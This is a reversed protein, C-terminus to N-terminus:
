QRLLRLKEAIQIFESRGEKTITVRNLDILVRIARDRRGSERLGSPGLRQLDRKSIRTLCQNEHFYKKLWSDLSKADKLEQPMDVEGFYRAQENAYWDIIQMARLMNDESIDSRGGTADVANELLQFQCALRAANDAAKGLFRNKCTDEDGRNSQTDRSYDKWVSRATSSLPMEPPSLVRGSDDFQLKKGFLSSLACKYADVHPITDMETGEFNYSEVKALLTRAFFGSEHLLESNENKSLFNEFRGPQLLLGITLKGGIAIDIGRSVTRTDLTEGSWLDCWAHITGAIQKLSFAHAYLLKGGEGTIIAASPHHHCLYSVVYQRSVDVIPLSPIYVPPISNREAILERLEKEAMATDKGTKALQRIKDKKGLIKSEIASESATFLDIDYGLRQRERLVHEAVVPSLLDNNTTKRSNVGALCISFTGIPGVRRADRRVVALGQTAYSLYFLHVAVILPMAGGNDKHAELVSAEIVGPLAETPFPEQPPTIILSEPEPSNDKGIEMRNPGTNKQGLNMTEGIQRKVEERGQEQHLDNFDTKGPGPRAFQPFVVRPRMGTIREVAKAAEMAKQRGKNENEARRSGDDNFTDDDGCIVIGDATGYKKVFTEVVIPINGADFCVRVNGGTAEHISAGTAYGECFYLVHNKGAGPILHSTGRSRSGTLFPKIEGEGPPIRQYNWIKGSVDRGFVMLNNSKQWIDYVGVGKRKLYPHNPGAPVVESKFVRQAYKAQREYRKSQEEDAKRRDREIREDLQQKDEASLPKGNGIGLKQMQDGYLPWNWCLLVLYSGNDHGVYRGDKNKHGKGDVPIYKRAGDFIVKEPPKLGHSVLFAKAKSQIESQSFPPQKTDVM